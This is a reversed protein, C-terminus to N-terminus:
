QVERELTKKVFPRVTKPTCINQTPDDKFLIIIGDVNVDIPPNNNNNKLKKRIIIM